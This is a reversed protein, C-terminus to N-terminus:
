CEMMAAGRGMSRQTGHLPKREGYAPVGVSILTREMTSVALVTLLALLLLLLSAAEDFIKKCKPTCGVLRPKLTHFVSFSAKEEASVLCETTFCSGVSLAPSDLVKDILEPNLTELNDGGKKVPTQLGAQREGYPKFEHVVSVNSHCDDYEDIEVASGHYASILFSQDTSTAAIVIGSM